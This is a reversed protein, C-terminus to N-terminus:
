STPTLPYPLLTTPLVYPVKPIANSIYIFFIDILVLLIFFSVLFSNVDMSSEGTNHHVTDVALVTMKCRYFPM